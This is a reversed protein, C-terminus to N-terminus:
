GPPRHEELMSRRRQRAAHRVSDRNRLTALVYTSWATTHTAVRALGFLVLDMANTSASAGRRIRPVGPGPRHRSRVGDRTAAEGPHVDTSDSTAQSVLAFRRAGGARARLRAHITTNQAPRLSSLAFFSSSVLQIWVRISLTGPRSRNLALLPALRPARPWRRRTTSNRADARSKESTGEGRAAARTGPVAGVFWM